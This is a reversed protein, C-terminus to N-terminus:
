FTVQPQYRFRATDDGVPAPRRGLRVVDVAAYRLVLGVADDTASRLCATAVDLTVTRTTEDFGIPAAGPLEVCRRYREGVLLTAVPDSSRAQSVVVHVRAHTGPTTAALHYSRGLLRQAPELAGTRWTFRVYASGLPSDGVTSRRLDTARRTAPGVDRWASERVADGAPDKEKVVSVGTSATAAATAASTVLPSAGVSGLPVATVAATVATLALTRLATIIM